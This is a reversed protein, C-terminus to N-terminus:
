SEPLVTSRNLFARYAPVGVTISLSSAITSYVDPDVPLVTILSPPTPPGPLVTVSATVTAGASDQITIDVATSSAVGNALLTITTGPLNQVVPLVATNNSFARYPAVGGSITVTTAVQAYVTLTAPLVTLPALTAPPPAFPNNPAGSGGGCASLALVGALAFLGALPRLWAAFLRLATM